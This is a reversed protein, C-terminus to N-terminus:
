GVTQCCANAHQGQKSKEQQQRSFALKELHCWDKEDIHKPQKENSHIISLLEQRRKTMAKEILGKLYDENLRTSYEFDENLRGKFM